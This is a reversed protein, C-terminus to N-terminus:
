KGAYECIIVDVDDGMVECVMPYVVNDWDGGGRDCGMKYPIAISLKERQAFDMLRVLASRLAGYDTYVKNSSGYDFQGFLHVIYLERKEDQDYIPCVQTSGLMLHRDPHHAACYTKYLEYAKPFRERIQKAVGSGMVGMCNVQHAIIDADTDFVSGKIHTIM